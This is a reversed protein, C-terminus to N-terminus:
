PSQHLFLIKRKKLGYVPGGGGSQVSRSLDHINKLKHLARGTINQHLRERERGVKRESDKEKDRDRERAIKM